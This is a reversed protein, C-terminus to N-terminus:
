NSRYAIEDVFSMGRSTIQRGNPVKEVLQAAELQQLIHRAISGSGPRSKEEKVGRNMRGSYAKKLRRTGIPGTLYVKRLVSAARVYWWDPNEPPLEKYVATKVFPAFSPPSIEPFSKIEEALEAILKAPSIDYANVM